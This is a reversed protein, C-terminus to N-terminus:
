KEASIGAWFIRWAKQLRREAEDKGYYFLQMFLGDVLCYFSAILDEVENRRIFGNEMGEIFLSRLIDSLAQESAMFKERLKEGELFPPPFLMVRKLFVAKEENQLYYHFIGWLIQYLKEKISSHTQKELLQKVYQVDEWLVDEFVSLFLDEKGHFHAYISPTKIGVKKAIQSLSTGEYGNRAFLPLSAAKITEKTTM